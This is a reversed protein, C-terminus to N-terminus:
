LAASLTLLSLAAALLGPVAVMAWVVAPTLRAVGALQGSGLIALQCTLSMVASAAFGFTVRVLGVLVSSLDDLGGSARGLM